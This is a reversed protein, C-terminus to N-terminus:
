SGNSRLRKKIDLVLEKVVNGTRGMVKNRKLTLLDEGSRADVVHLYFNNRFRDRSDLPKRDLSLVLDAEARNTVVKWRGWEQLERYLQDILNQQGTDDQLFVTKAAIIKEPLPAYTEDAVALLSVSATILVCALLRAM